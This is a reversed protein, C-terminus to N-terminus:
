AEPLDAPNAPGDGRMDVRKRLYWPGKTRLQLRYVGVVIVAAAACLLLSVFHATVKGGLQMVWPSGPVMVAEIRDGPKVAQYCRTSASQVPLFHGSEARTEVYYTTSKSSRSVRSSVVVVTAKEGFWLRIHYPSLIALHVVLTTLTAIVLWKVHLHMRKRFAEAVPQTSIVLREGSPARVLVRPAAAGRYASAEGGGAREFVRGVVTVEQRNELQAVIAREDADGPARRFPICLLADADADVQVLAGDATRVRFPRADVRRQTETWSHHTSKKQTWTKGRQNIEVRVAFPVGDDL